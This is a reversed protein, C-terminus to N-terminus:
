SLLWQLGADGDHTVLFNAGRNVAVNEAFRNILEPPLIAVTKYPHRLITAIAEGTDFRVMESRPRSLAACDMLIRTLQNAAAGDRITALAHKASTSEWVGVVHVRLYGDEIRFSLELPM